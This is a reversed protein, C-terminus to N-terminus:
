QSKKNTQRHLMCLYVKKLCINSTRQFFQVLSNFESAFCPLLFELKYYILRGTPSVFAILDNNNYIIIKKYAVRYSHFNEQGILGAVTFTLLFSHHM